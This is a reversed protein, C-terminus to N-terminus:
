ERGMYEDIIARGEETLADRNNILSIISGILTETNRYISTDDEVVARLLKRDKGNETSTYLKFSTKNKGTPDPIIVIELETNDYLRTKYCVNEKNDLDKVWGFAGNRTERTLKSLFDVLYREDVGMSLVNENVLTDLSVDLYRSCIILFKISPMQGKKEVRYLYGPTFGAEREIVGIRVSKHEDLLRRINQTCLRADIDNQKEEIREKM